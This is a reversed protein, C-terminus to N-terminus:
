IRAHNEESWEGSAKPVPLPWVRIERGAVDSPHFGLVRRMRVGLEGRVPAACSSRRAGAIEDLQYLVEAEM